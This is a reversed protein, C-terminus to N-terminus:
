HRVARSRPVVVRVQQSGPLYNTDGGYNVTLAPAAPLNTLTATASSSTGAAALQVKAIETGGNVVSLTGTPPVAPSGTAEVNLTFTGAAGPVPLLTANLTANGSRVIASGSTSLPLFNADGSYSITYNLIAVSRAYFPVSVTGSGVTARALEQGGATVTVIGTAKAGSIPAAALQQVSLILPRDFTTVTSSVNTSVGNPWRPSTGPAVVTVIMKTFQGVAITATGPAIGRVPFTILSSSVNTVAGISAISPDSSSPAAGPEVLKATITATAGTTLFAADMAMTKGANVTWAVTNNSPQPDRQQATATASLTVQTSTPIGGYDGGAAPQSAGPALQAVACIPCGVSGATSTLKLEIGSAISPGNNTFTVSDYLRSGYDSFTPVISLDAAADDDDIIGAGESRAIRAGRPNRLTVFFTRN